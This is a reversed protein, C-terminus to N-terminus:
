KFNLSPDLLGPRPNIAERNADRIEFHLHPKILPNDANGTKGCLGIQQGERVWAGKVIQLQSLHAYRSFRGDPHAIEIWFGYGKDTGAVAVRGSKSALIPRGLPYAIDLGKHTRGGNRSAGFYGKGYGDQRIFITKDPTVIPARYYPETLAFEKKLHSCLYPVAGFCLAGALVLLFSPRAKFTFFSGSPPLSSSGSFSAWFPIEIPDSIFFHYICSFCKIRPSSSVCPFISLGTKM